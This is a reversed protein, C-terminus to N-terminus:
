LQLRRDKVEANEQLINFIQYSLMYARSQAQITKEEEITRQNPNEEEDTVRFVYVGRSGDVPESIADDSGAAAIAGVLKPEVGAQPISYSSFNINSATQLNVGMKDALSTITKSEAKKNNIEAIIQEAKKRKTLELKIIAAVESQPRYGKKTTKTLSAVVFAGDLEIIESVDGSEANYAWRVLEKSNDLGMVSKSERTINYGHKIPLNNESAAATFTDYDKSASRLKGAEAYINRHTTNSPEVKRLVRALLAKERPKSKQEVILIHTGFRSKVKQVEGIKGDFAADNFPKVMVGDAFWGLDGGQQASGQDKSFEQALASMKRKDAKLVGILSDTLAEMREQTTEQVLIHAAKVSDSRMERAVLKVVKYTEEEQYPGYIAGMESSFAFDQLREELDEKASYKEDWAEDSYQKIYSRLESTEEIDAIENAVEESWKKTEADDDASPVIPYSVYEINRSETQKYQEKHKNYYKSIESSSVEITSDPINAYPVSFFDINKNTKAGELTLQAELTNVSIGKGLLAHYKENLRQKTLEREIFSWYFRRKDADEDNADLSKLFSLIQSKDVQGTQPNAFIQRLMPHINEGQALDFLEDPHVAVGTNEYETQFVYERVMGNWTEDEAREITAEDLALSNSNLKYIEKTEELRRQYDDFDVGEGNIEAVTRDPRGFSGNQLSEGLLFALLAFAIFGILLGAKNRIKQLVAM